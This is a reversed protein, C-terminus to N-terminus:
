GARSFCLECPAFWPQAPVAYTSTGYKWGCKTVWTAPDPGPPGRLVAHRRKGKSNGIEEIDADKTELHEIDTTTNDAEDAKRSPSSSSSSSSSSRRTSRTAAREKAVRAAAADVLESVFEQGLAARVEAVNGKLIERLSEAVDSRHEDEDRANATLTKLNTSTVAAKTTMAAVAIAADNVYQEM